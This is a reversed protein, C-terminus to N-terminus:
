LTINDNFVKLIDYLKLTEESTLNDGAGILKYSLNESPTIPFNTYISPVLISIDESTSANSVGEKPVSFRSDMWHFSGNDFSAVFAGEPMGMNAGFAGSGGAPEVSSKNEAVQFYTEKQIYSVVHANTAFVYNKSGIMFHGQTDGNKSMIGFLSIKNSPTPTLRWGCSNSNLLQHHQVVAENNSNLEYTSAFFGSAATNTLLDYGAEAITTSYFPISLLKLKSLLGQQVLSLYLTNLAQAFENTKEAPFRTIHSMMAVVNTDLERDLHISGINNQSFDAGGLVIIM